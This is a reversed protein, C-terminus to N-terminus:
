CQPLFQVEKLCLLDVARMSKFCYQKEPGRRPTPTAGRNVKQAAACIKGILLDHADNVNPGRPNKRYTQILESWDRTVYKTSVSELAARQLTYTMIVPQSEIHNSRITAWFKAFELSDSLYFGFGFDKQEGWNITLQVGSEIAMSSMWSTVHYLVITDESAQFPQLSDSDRRLTLPLKPAPSEAKIGNARFFLDQISLQLTENPTWGSLPYGEASVQWLKTLNEEEALTMLVFGSLNQHGWEDFHRLVRESAAQTLGWQMLGEVSPEITNTELILPNRNLRRFLAHIRCEAYISALGESRNLRRNGLDSLGRLQIKIEEEAECFESEDM